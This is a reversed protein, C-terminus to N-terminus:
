PSFPRFLHQEIDMWDMGDMWDMKTWETWKQGLGNRGNAGDMQLQCLCEKQNYYM